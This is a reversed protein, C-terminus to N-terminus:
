TNYWSRCRELGISKFGVAIMNPNPSDGLKSGEPAEGEM